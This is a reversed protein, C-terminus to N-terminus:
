VETSVRADHRAPNESGGGRTAVLASDAPRRVLLGFVASLAARFPELVSPRRTHILIGELEAYSRAPRRYLDADCAPCRFV